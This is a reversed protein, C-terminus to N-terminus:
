AGLRESVARAIAAAITDIDGTADIVVCRKPDGSPSRSFAPGSAPMSIARCARTARRPGAGRPPRALARDRDAPRPDPHPRAPFRRRGGRLARDFIRRDVGHGYGQYALTSDAFRDSVVWDGRELAPWVTSRLHERRAAFHLLAETTGDWREVPGEVLLKRIMEAGPSGGPERTAVVDRGRGELWSKLRAIQTSKGAGEGGELTIFRGASAATVVVALRVPLAPDDGDRPRGRGHAGRRRRGRASVRDDRGDPLTVVATGVKTGKAIPAALPGDFRAVVRPTVRRAPRRPSRSPGRWSWRCRTRPAWGSRRRSSPTAPASSRPTPRIRPLGMGDAAGDGARARGDLGARERGPDPAARRAAGVDGPRFRGGGHPRDEAWRHGADIKLLRNRNDQKINNYTWNTEAYYRYLKPFDEITRWALVALDRATTWQGEAPWGSANKFVTGTMGLERGRKTMREAFSDENGSLGEAVVVCADNGSLVIMGKILDEVTVESGLEVFMRSGGMNRARESVRFRTDLKLRGAELEEFLIYITMMKAMSSPHMPKDADKFLLVTSTQPDVMFAQKALTGIGIQSPPLAETKAAPPTAPKARAGDDRAAQGAAEAAPRGSPRSTPRSRQPMSRRAPLSRWQSFRRSFRRWRACDIM